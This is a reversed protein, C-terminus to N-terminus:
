ITAWVDLFGFLSCLIIAVFDFDAMFKSRSRLFFSEPDKGNVTQFVMYIYSLIVDFFSFISENFRVFMQYLM